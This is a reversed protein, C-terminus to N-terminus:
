ESRAKVKDATELVYALDRGDGSERWRAVDAALERLITLESQLQREVAMRQENEAMAIDLAKRYQTREELFQTGASSALAERLPYCTPKPCEDWTWHDKHRYHIDFHASWIATRLAAADAEAKEAQNTLDGLVVDYYLSAFDALAQKCELIDMHLEFAGALRDYCDEWELIRARLQEVTALDAGALAIEESM